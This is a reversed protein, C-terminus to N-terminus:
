PRYAVAITAGHLSSSVLLGANNASSPNGMGASSTVLLIAHLPFREREGNALSQLYSAITISQHRLQNCYELELSRFM